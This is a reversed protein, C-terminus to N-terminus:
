QKTGQKDVNLPIGGKMTVYTAVPCAKEEGEHFAYHARCNACVDSIAGPIRKWHSGSPVDVHRVMVSGGGVWAGQGSPADGGM